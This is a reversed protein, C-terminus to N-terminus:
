KLRISLHIDTTQKAMDATIDGIPTAKSGELNIIFKRKEDDKCPM